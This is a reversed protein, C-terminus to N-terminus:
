SRAPVPSEFDPPKVALVSSNVQTLVWEATNGIIAGPLGSRALTGIVLIGPNIRELKAIIVEGSRGRDVHTEVTLGEPLREAILTRLHEHTELRIENAMGMLEEAPIGLRASSLLSEGEMRWAHVVHLRGGRRLALSSALQMLTRDLETPGDDFPGVAVAVDPNDSDSETHVLVPTPCKRLLHMTTSSGSLGRGGLREPATMVLDHDFEYVRRIAEIYTSGSAVAVEIPQDSVLEKLQQLRAEILVDALDTDPRSSLRRLGRGRPPEVAAFITLKAENRQALQRAQGLLTQTAASDEHALMLINKFRQM